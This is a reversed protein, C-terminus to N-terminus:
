RTVVWYLAGLVRARGGGKVLGPRPRRRDGRTWALITQLWAARKQEEETSARRAARNIYERIAPLHGLLFPVSFHSGARRVVLVHTDLLALVRNPRGTDALFIAAFYDEPIREQEDTM